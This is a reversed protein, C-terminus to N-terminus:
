VVMHSLLYSGYKNLEKLENLTKKTKDKLLENREKDEGTFYYIVSLLTKATQRLFYFTLPM